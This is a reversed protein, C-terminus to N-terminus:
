RLFYHAERKPLYLFWDWQLQKYGSKSYDRPSSCARHNFQANRLHNNEVIFSVTAFLPGYFFGLLSISVASSVLNPVLWFILHFVLIMVCCGLGMRREGFRHTPEALLLRGLFIGGWLGTPVYGVDPLKGNRASVLYEVIWGGATIGVGLMFFYFLSVLYVPPSKLTEIIDRSASNNRSQVEEQVTESSPVKKQIKLTDRFVVLVAVINISGIGVLFLYFLPWREGIRAALATAVFPAILCGLAYMAHIFGLWRHSGQISAVYSNSHSDQYGMGAAQLFFTFAYLGFPPTWFRLLHAALQLIAGITLIAGLQFHHVLHTNTAAALLWGVFSAAYIIAVHETGIHYTRLIYPTLAGLSGDNLGAFIYSFGVTLIRIMNTKDLVLDDHPPSAVVHISGPRSSMPMSQLEINALQTTETETMITTPM